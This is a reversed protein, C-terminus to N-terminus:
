KRIFDEGVYYTVGTDIILKLLTNNIKMNYIALVKSRSLEIVPELPDKEEEDEKNIMM